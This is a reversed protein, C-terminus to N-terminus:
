KAIFKRRNQILIGDNNSSRRGLLDYAPVAKDERLVSHLGTYPVSNSEDAPYVNWELGSKKDTYIGGGIVAHDISIGYEQGSVYVEYLDPGVELFDWVTAQKTGANWAPWDAIGFFVNEDVVLQFGEGEPVFYFPTGFEQLSYGSNETAVIADNGETLSIYLECDPQMLVYAKDDAFQASATMATCLAILTFIKKM